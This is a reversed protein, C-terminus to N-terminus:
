SNPTKEVFVINGHSLKSPNDPLLLTTSYGAQDVIKGSISALGNKSNIVGGLLPASYRTERFGFIISVRRLLQEQDDTFYGQASCTVYPIVPAQIIKTYGEPTTRVVLGIEGLPKHFWPSMRDAAEAVTKFLSELDDGFLLNVRLFGLRGISTTITPRHIHIWRDTNTTTTNNVLPYERNFEIQDVPM